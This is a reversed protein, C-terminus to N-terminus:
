DKSSTGLAHNADPAGICEPVWRTYQRHRSYWPHQAWRTYLFPCESAYHTYKACQAHVPYGTYMAYPTCQTHDLNPTCFIKM